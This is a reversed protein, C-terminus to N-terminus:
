RIGVAYLDSFVNNQPNLNTLIVLRGDSSVAFFTKEFPGSYITRKNSGDYDMIVIEKEQMLALHHSDPYWQILSNITPMEYTTTQPEPSYLTPQLKVNTGTATETSVKLQNSAIPLPINKDEKKDYVYIHDKQINREETTQNAGILPTKLVPPVFANNTGRYLIKLEDPSFAIIEFSDSAVKQIEKPFTELIKTIDRTRATRWAQLLTEKSATTDFLETNESDLSILFAKSVGDVSYEFIAESYDPKFYVQAEALKITDPLKNLLLIPKLPPLFSLTRQATQFTYIGDKEVDDNQIFLLVEGTQDINLAKVVGTSTLPSLSPNKPFLLADLSMVIEGKLSVEQSWSTYGEKKIEVSYKGPPLVLNTDTVGKLIGNVYISAAKPSSSIALIGTPTIAQNKFDFRYGRAFAIIAVLIGVFILAFLIRYLINLHNM